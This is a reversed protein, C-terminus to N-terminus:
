APEPDQLQACLGLALTLRGSADTLSSWRVGQPSWSWTCPRGQDDSVQLDFDWDHGEDLPGPPGFRTHLAQLLRASDQLMRLRHQAPPSALADWSCVGDETESRDFELFGPM